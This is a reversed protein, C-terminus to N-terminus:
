AHLTWLTMVATMLCLFLAQSGDAGMAGAATTMGINSKFVEPDLTEGNSNLTKRRELLRPLFEPHLLEVAVNESNLPVPYDDPVKGGTPVLESRGDVLKAVEVAAEAVLSYFETEPILMTETPALPWVLFQAQETPVVKSTSSPEGPAFGSRELLREAQAGTFKTAM